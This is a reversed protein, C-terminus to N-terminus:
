DDSDRWGRHEKGGPANWKKHENSTAPKANNRPPTERADTFWERALEALRSDTPGHPRKRDIAAM